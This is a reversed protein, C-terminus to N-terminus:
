VTAGERKLKRQRTMDSQRDSRQMKHEFHGFLKSLAFTMIFYIIGTIVLPETGTNVYRFVATVAGDDESFAGFNHDTELWTVRPQAAAALTLLAAALTLSSRKM